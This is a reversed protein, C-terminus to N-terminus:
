RSALAEISVNLATELGANTEATHFAPEWSLTALSDSVVFLAGASVKRFEAVSFIASAEMDVTCVGEEQYQRVEDVTERYPADVTWGTGATYPISKETLVGTLRETLDSAAYAYKSPPLYHHSTGEDRIAKNCVVIDGPKLSKQLTGALGVSVINRIGLAILEECVAITVPAGFGFNGICGITQRYDDLLVMEAGYFGKQRQVSHTNEIFNKLHRSYYIIVSRPILRSASHGTSKRYKESDEPNIIPSSSYKDPYNPFTM